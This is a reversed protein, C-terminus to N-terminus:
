AKRNSPPPQFDEDELVVPMRSNRLLNLFADDSM